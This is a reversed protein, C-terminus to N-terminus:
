LAARGFVLLGVREKVNCLNNDVAKAGDCLYSQRFRERKEEEQLLGDVAFNNSGGDGSSRPNGGDM